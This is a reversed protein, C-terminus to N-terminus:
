SGDGDNASREAQFARQREPWTSKIFGLIAIIEADTLIDGFAPMDSEYGPVIAAVGGKTIAFLSSDSHHWTHGSEDHPPAPMRVNDFRRRWNPQGELNSGHCSACETDYLEKGLTIKEPTVPQGLVTLGALTTAEGNAYNALTLGLALATAHPILQVRNM